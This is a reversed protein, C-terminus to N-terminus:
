DVMNLIQSPSQILVTAGAQLLQEKSRFGWECAICGVGAAIATQVDAESDGVFLVENTTLNWQRLIDLTTQPDPKVARGSAAGIIPDFTDPGFYHRSIVEAPAQNKNTLVALRVGQRSLTGIVNKVGPYPATKLLCHDKYYDVMRTVLEDALQIHGPGIAREAFAHLGHGIMARCEDASRVPRNMQKLGANMSDTLDDLTDVLTGDLDFIIGKIDLFEGTM